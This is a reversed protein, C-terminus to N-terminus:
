NADVWIKLTSENRTYVCFHAFLTLSFTNNRTLCGQLIFDMFLLM